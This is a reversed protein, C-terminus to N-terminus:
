SQTINSQAVEVKQNTQRPATSYRTKVAKFEFSSAQAAPQVSSRSGCVTPTTFTTPLTYFSPTTMQSTQANPIDTSPELLVGYAQTYAEELNIFGQARMLFDTITDERKRQLDGWLLSGTALGLTLAVIKMVDTVKTKTAVDIMRQIYKKLSERLQQKVSTLSSAVLNFAKVAVFQKRCMAQLDRWNHISGGSLIKWWDEVSKSLTLSFCLCKADVSAKTVQMIYNYNSLHDRPDTRGEYLKMQPM